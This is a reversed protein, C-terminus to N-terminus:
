PPGLQSKSLRPQYSRRVLRGGAETWVVEFTTEDLQRIALNAVPGRLEAVRQFPSFPSIANERFVKGPVDTVVSEQMSDGQRAVIVVAEEVRLALAYLYRPREVVRRAMSDYLRLSENLRVKAFSEFVPQIVRFGVRADTCYSFWMQYEGSHTPVSSGSPWMMDPTRPLPDFSRIELMRKEGPKFWVTKLEAAMEDSWVFRGSWGKNPHPSIYRYPGATIGPEQLERETALRLLNLGGNSLPDYVELLEPAPNSLTVHATAAEGALYVERDLRLTCELKRTNQDLMRARQHHTAGVPIPQSSGSLAIAAFMFLVRAKM